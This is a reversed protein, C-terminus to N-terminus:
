WKFNPFLYPSMNNAILDVRYNNVGDVPGDEFSGLFGALVWREPASLRVVDIGFDYIWRRCLAPRCRIQFIGRKM